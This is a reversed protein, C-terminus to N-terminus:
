QLFAVTHYFALLSFVNYYCKSCFFFGAGTAMNILNLYSPPHALADNHLCYLQVLLENITIIVPM